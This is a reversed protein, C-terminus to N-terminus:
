EGVSCDAALSHDSLSAVIAASLIQQEYEDFETPSVTGAVHKTKQMLELQFTIPQTPMATPSAGMRSNASAYFTLGAVLIWARYIGM